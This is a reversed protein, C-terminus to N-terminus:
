AAPGRGFRSLARPGDEAVVVVERELFGGVGEAQVWGQVALVMGDILEAGDGVGAAVVPAEMGLGVGHALPSSPLPEGAAEWARRLDAGTRGPRCQDLMADLATRCRGALGRQAPTAPSPGPLWTRGVGGEYGGYRAGPNLVVLEDAGVARGTPVQRLRVPGDHPTACVIGETPPAPEGRGAIAALYAGVLEQETVGPRLAETLADLAGEALATATEICALEDPTKVTRATAIAPGADVLDADPAVAALFQGFGPSSSDTGVRRAGHLGPIRAVNAILNAPNWALGFLDDHGVEAPIGEDWTSLLHVRGTERVVVAGPGFPRAGATWLQRAGSAYAINAPRGLILADLEHSAMSAALRRRREARLRAFDVRGGEPLAMTGTM